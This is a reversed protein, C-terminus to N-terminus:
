LRVWMAPLVGQTSILSALGSNGKENCRFMEPMNSGPSRSWWNYVYWDTGSQACRFGEVVPTQYSGARGWSYGTRTVGMCATYDSGGFLTDYNLFERQGSYHNEPYNNGTWNSAPLHFDYVDTVDAYSLAFIYDETNECCNYNRPMGNKDTGGQSETSFDTNVVKAKLIGAKEAESFATNYFDGNMFERLYSKDYPCSSTKYDYEEKFNYAFKVGDLVSDAIVTYCNEPPLTGVHVYHRIDADTKGGGANEWNYSSYVDNTLTDIYRYFEPNQNPITRDIEPTPAGAGYTYVTEGTFSNDEGPNGSAVSTDPKLIRWYIPEYKFWYINNNHFPSTQVNKQLNADDFYVGRYKSGDTDTVDTTWIHENDARQTWDTKPSSGASQELRGILGSGDGTVQTQPYSGMKLRANDDGIKVKQTLEESYRGYGYDDFAVIQYFKEIHCNKCINSENWDHPTEPLEHEWDGEEGCGNLCHFVEKGAKSCTAEEIVEGNTLDYSHATPDVPLPAHLDEEDTEEFHTGNSDVINLWLKGCQCEYHAVTGPEMCTAPKEEILDGRYHFDAAHPTVNREETYGCETCSFVTYDKACTKYEVGGDFQHPVIEVDDPHGCLSPHYHGNENYAWTTQDYRHEHTIPSHCVDCIDDFDDDIHMEPATRLDTHECIAKHWHYTEDSTWEESYQHVHPEEPQKGGNCAALAFASALACLSILLAIFTIKKNKKM